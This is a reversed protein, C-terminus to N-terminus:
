SPSLGTWDLWGSKWEAYWRAIRKKAKNTIVGGPPAQKIRESARGSDLENAYEVCAAYVYCRIEQGLDEYTLAFEGWKRMDTMGSYKRAFRAAIKEGWQEYVQNPNM